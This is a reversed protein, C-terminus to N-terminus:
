DSGRRRATTAHTSASTGGKVAAGDAAGDAAAERADHWADEIMEVAWIYAVILVVYIGVAGQSSLWFGLPFRGIRYANLEAAFWPLALTVALWVALLMVTVRRINRWYSLRALHPDLEASPAVLWRVLPLQSSGTGSQHGGFGSLLERATVM